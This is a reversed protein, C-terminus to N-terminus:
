ESAVLTIDKVTDETIIQNGSQSTFGEKSVSWTVLSGATVVITQRNASNITVVADAPTPKITFAVRKVLVSTLGESGRVQIDEIKGSSNDRIVLIENETIENPDGEVIRSLSGLNLVRKM